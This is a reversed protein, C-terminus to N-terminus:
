CPSMAVYAVWVSKGRVDGDFACSCAGAQGGRAGACVRMGAGPSQPPAAPSAFSPATSGGGGGGGGDGGGVMRYMTFGPHPWMVQAMGADGPMLPAGLVLHHPHLGHGPGYGLTHHGHAYGAVGGGGGQTRYTVGGHLHGSGDALSPGTAGATGAALPPM